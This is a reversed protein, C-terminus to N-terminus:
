IEGFYEVFNNETEYLKISHLKCGLEVTLPELQKWIEIALIETSAMKGQMFPVDLNLNRHDLAEIIETKIIKSLHKLDVVFGTEPNPNGKVTVYLDYNHGHWNKNACKGFVELNKEESWEARWVKHAANFHEKRTVYIM